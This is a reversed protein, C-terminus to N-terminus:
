TDLQKSEMCPIASCCSVTEYKSMFLGNQSSGYFDAEGCKCPLALYELQHRNGQMCYVNISDQNAAASGTQQSSARVSSHDDCKSVGSLKTVNEHMAAPWLCATWSSLRIVPLLTPPESDTALCHAKRSCEGKTWGCSHSPSATQQSRTHEQMWSESRAPMNYAQHMIGSAHRICSAAQITAAQSTDM